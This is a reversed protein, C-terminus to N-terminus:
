YVYVSVSSFEEDELFIIEKNSSNLILPWQDSIFMGAGDSYNIVYTKYAKRYEGESLIYDGTQVFFAEENITQLNEITNFHKQIDNPDPGLMNGDEVIKLFNFDQFKTTWKVQGDKGYGFLFNMDKFYTVVENAGDTCEVGGMSLFTTSMESKSKYIRGFNNTVEFNDINIQQVSKREKEGNNLQPITYIFIDNESICFDDPPSTAEIMASAEFEDTNNKEFV